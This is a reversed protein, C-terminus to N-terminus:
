FLACTNTLFDNKYNELIAKLKLMDKEYLVCSQVAEFLPLNKSLSRVDIIWHQPSFDKEVEGYYLPKEPYIGSYHGKRKIAQLKEGQMGEFNFMKECSFICADDMKAKKCQAMRCVLCQRSQLLNFNWLLPYWLAVTAPIQLKKVDDSSLELSPVFGKATIRELLSALAYSNSINAHSGLVLSFNKNQAYFAIGLNECYLIRGDNLFDLLEQINKEHKPFLIAPIYLAIERNKAIFKGVETKLYAEVSDILSLEFLVKGGLSFISKAKEIDDTFFYCSFDHKVKADGSLQPLIVPSLDMKQEIKAILNRRMENLEKLPLFLNEDLSQCWCNELYFSTEGLKGMKEELVKPTLSATSAAVLVSQSFVSYTVNNIVATIKLKEGCCGIVSLSLPKKCPKLANIKGLLEKKNIKSKSRLVKQGNKLKGYLKNQLSFVVKTASKKELVIGSGIFFDKEDYIFLEDNESLSVKTDLVLESTKATYNKVMGIQELSHDKMGFTFMKQSIADALYGDSFGRNYVSAFKEAVEESSPVNEQLLSIWTNTTAFVYEFSKIRGEIKLSVPTLQQLEKAFNQANNDKLNFFTEKKGGCTYWRRCPQVCKGRNGSENYLFNSFYCQGSYSICYAGHIFIEPVINKKHLFPVLDQLEGLSLERSLNIQNFGYTELFNIQQANHTTLQTSAHISVHPFLKKILSAIGLDQVIIAVVGANVAEKVVSLAEELESDKLLINLTLYPRIGRSTALPLLQKLHALQINEARNRANFNEVGFFIAQAGALIAAGFADKDGAPVLLEVSNTNTKM